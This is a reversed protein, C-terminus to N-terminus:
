VLRTWLGCGVIREVFSYDTNGAIFSKMSEIHLSSM